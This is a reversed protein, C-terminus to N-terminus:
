SRSSRHMYNTTSKNDEKYGGEDEVIDRKWITWTSNKENKVTIWPEGKKTFWDQWSKRIKHSFKDTEVIDIVHPLDKFSEPLFSDVINDFHGFFIKHGTQM